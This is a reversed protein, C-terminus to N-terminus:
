HEILVGSKMVTLMQDNGLWYPIEVISEIDWFLLDAQYGPAVAGIRDERQLAKAANWTAAKFAEEISLGCYLTGLSIVIPMSNLTCSGPNFDTALAVEVGADILIRGPAYTHKGLFLTTGPLLTAIVNADALAKIGADSVAMLHDASVAGMEAALEAAGSDVFEDAHLRPTLGYDLGTELIRRSDAVSFYGSECFVDCFEALKEEAAAPIMENCILDVYKEPNASLEPPFAHAGLLTPVVDLVTEMGAARIVRLMKLESEVDLGYGSKAEITTTGHYIFNDFRELTRTVLREESASRVGTISSIIGGGALAIEEYSHGDIRMKFENARNGVFVPHTHPDIWGPTILAGDADIEEDANEIEPAMDTIIGDEILLQMDHIEVVRQEEDSWTTICRSNTIRIKM